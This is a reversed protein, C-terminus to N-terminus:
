TAPGARAFDVTRQNRSQDPPHSHNRRHTHVPARGPDARSAEGGFPWVQLLAADLCLENGSCGQLRGLDRDPRDVQPVPGCSARGIIHTNDCANGLQSGCHSLSLESRHDVELACHRQTGIQLKDVREVPEPEPHHLEGVVVPAQDAVAAQFFTVRRVTNPRCTTWRICSTPTATSRAWAPRRVQRSARSSARTGMITLWALARATCSEGRLKSSSTISFTAAVPPTIPSQGNWLKTEESGM